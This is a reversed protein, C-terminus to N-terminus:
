SSEKRRLYETYEELVFWVYREAQRERGKETLTLGNIWQFYHTLEHVFTGLIALVGKDRGREDCLAEYDGVALKIYPEDLYSDPEFFLGVVLDGDKAKIFPTNYVYVNIRLPFYYERRLWKAFRLFETKLEGPISADYRFRIGDRRNSEDALHKQWNEITWIHM